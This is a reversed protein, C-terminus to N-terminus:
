IDNLERMDEETVSARSPDHDKDNCRHRPNGPDIDLHCDTCEEPPEDYMAPFYKFTMGCTECTAEQRDGTM